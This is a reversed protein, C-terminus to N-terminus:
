VPGVKSNPHSSAEDYSGFGLIDNIQVGENQTSSCKGVFDLCEFGEVIVYRSVGTQKDVEVILPCHSYRM